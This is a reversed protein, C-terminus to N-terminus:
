TPWALFKLSTAAKGRAFAPPLGVRTRPRHSRGVRNTRAPRQSLNAQLATATPCSLAPVDVIVTSCAFADITRRGTSRQKGTTDPSSRSPLKSQPVLRHNPHKLSSALPCTVPAQPARRSMAVPMGTQYHKTISLRFYNNLHIAKFPCRCKLNRAASPNMADFLDSRAGNGALDPRM